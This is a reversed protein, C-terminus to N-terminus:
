KQSTHGTGDSTPSSEEALSRMHRLVASGVAGVSEEDSDDNDIYCHSLQDVVKTMLLNNGAPCTSKEKNSSSTKFYNRFSLIYGWLSRTNTPEVELALCFNSRSAAIEGISYLLSAVTTLVYVRTPNTLLVEEFCYLSKALLMESLYIKGLEQWAVADLAFETLHKNLMEVADEVKRQALYIAVVRRRSIHDEPNTQLINSYLELAASHDNESEMLMARLRRVRQAHPFRKSLKKV